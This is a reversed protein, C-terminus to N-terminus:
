YGELYFEEYNEPTVVNGSIKFDGYEQGAEIKDKFIDTAPTGNVMELLADCIPIAFDMASYYVCAKWVGTRGEKWEPIAREGGCSVLASNDAAGAAEVARIAGLAYDDVAGFLVWKKM